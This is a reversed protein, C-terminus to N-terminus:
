PQFCVPPASIPLFSLAKWLLETDVEGQIELNKHEDNQFCMKFLSDRFINQTISLNLSIWCLFIEGKDWNIDWSSLEPCLHARCLAQSGPYYGLARFKITGAIGSSSVMGNFLLPGEKIAQAPEAPLLWCFTDQPSGLLSLSIELGM